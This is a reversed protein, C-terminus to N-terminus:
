LIKKFNKRLSNAIDWVTSRRLGYEEAFARITKDGLLCQDFVACHISNLTARFEQIVMKTLVEDTFDEHDTLWSPSKESDEPLVNLSLIPHAEDGDSAAATYSRRLRKEEARLVRFTERSVECTEGTSKVRVMCKGDKTTWLDYDFEIPTKMTKDKGGTRLLPFVLCVFLRMVTLLIGFRYFLLKLTSVRNM